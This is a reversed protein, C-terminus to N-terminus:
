YFLPTKLDTFSQLYQEPVALWPREIHCVQATEGNGASRKSAM